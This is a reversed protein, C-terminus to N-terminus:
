RCDKHVYLDKGKENKGLWELTGKGLGCRKCTMPIGQESKPPSTGIELVGAAERSTLPTQFAPNATRRRKQAPRAVPHIIAFKNLGM